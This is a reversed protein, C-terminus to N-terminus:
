CAAGASFPIIIDTEKFNNAHFNADLPPRYRCAVMYCFASVRRAQLCLTFKNRFIADISALRKWASKLQDNLSSIESRLTEVPCRVRAM